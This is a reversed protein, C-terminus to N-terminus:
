QSKKKQNVFGKRIAKKLEGQMHKIITNIGTKPYKITRNIGTKPYKPISQSVKSLLTSGQKNKVTKETNYQNAVTCVISLFGNNNKLGKVTVTNM